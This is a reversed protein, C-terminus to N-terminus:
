SNLQDKFAKAAIFKVTTHAPITISEGNFPNYGQREDLDKLAFTGFGRIRVSEGAGVADKITQTLFHVVRSAEAKSMKRDEALECILENANM